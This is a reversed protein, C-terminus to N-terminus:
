EMKCEEAPKDDRMRSFEPFRYCQGDEKAHYFIEVVKFPPACWYMVEPSTVGKAECYPSRLSKKGGCTQTGQVISHERLETTLRLRTADDMGACKGVFQLKNCGSCPECDEESKANCNDEYKYQALILAGIQGEYKGKGKTVGVIVCDATEKQEEIYMKKLKLVNKSRKDFEYPADKRKFMLGERGQKIYFEWAWKKQESTIFVQAIRIHDVNVSVWTTIVNNLKKYREMYGLESLDEGNLEVIDHCELVANYKKRTELTALATIFEEKGTEKNYFVLEAHIKFSDQQLRRLEEVLEAYYHDPNTEDAFNNKWSRATWIEIHEGNKIVWVGTGDFKIQGVFADNELLTLDGDKALMPKIQTTM